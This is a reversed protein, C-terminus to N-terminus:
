LLTERITKKTRIISNDLYLLFVTRELLWLHFILIVDSDHFALKMSGQEEVSLSGPLWSGQQLWLVSNWHITLSCLEM